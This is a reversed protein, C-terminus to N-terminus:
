QRNQEVFDKMLQEAEAMKQLQTAKGQFRGKRGGGKGGLLESIRCSAPVFVLVPPSSTFAYSDPLFYDHWM